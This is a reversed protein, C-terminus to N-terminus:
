LVFQLKELEALAKYLSREIQGEYLRFRALINSHTMDQKFIKGLELPSRSESDTQDVQNGSATRNPTVSPKFDGKVANSGEPFVNLERLLEAEIRDARYLKWFGAVIRDALMVELAGAPDLDELLIERFRNFEAPDEGPIVANEARLGHKIANQSSVARGQASAPGTSHLANKRNAILQKESIM